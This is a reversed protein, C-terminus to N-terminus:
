WSKVVFEQLSSPSRALAQHLAVDPELGNGIGTWWWRCFIAADDHEVVESFSVVFPVVGLFDGVQDAECGAILLIQVGDLIESLILPGIVQDGLEVGLPGAHVALHVNCQRGHARERYLATKLRELTANQIRLFEMGTETRVARLSSLDISLASDSGIAAILLPAKKNPEGALVEIPNALAMQARVVRLAGHEPYEAMALDIMEPILGAKEAEDVIFYWRTAPKQESLIRESNMGLQAMFFDSSAVDPYLFAMTKTLQVFIKNM